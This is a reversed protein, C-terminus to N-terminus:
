KNDKEKKKLYMYKRYSYFPLRTKKYIAYCVTLLSMAGCAITAAPFLGRLKKPGTKFVHSFIPILCLCGFTLMVSGALRESDGIKLVKQKENYSLMAVQEEVTAVKKM